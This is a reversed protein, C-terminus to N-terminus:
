AKSSVMVVNYTQASTGGTGVPKIAGFAGNINISIGTALSSAADGNQDDTVVFTGTATDAVQISLSGGDAAGSIMISHSNLCGTNQAAAVDGSTLATWTTKHVGPAIWEGLAAITAM